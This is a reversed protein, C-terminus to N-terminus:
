LFTIVPCVFNLLRIAVTCVLKSLSHVQSQGIRGQLKKQLVSSLVAEDGFYTIVPKPPPSEM